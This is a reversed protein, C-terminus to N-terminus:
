GNSLPLSDVSACLGLPKSPTGYNPLTARSCPWPSTLLFRISYAPQLNVSPLRCLRWCSRLLRYVGMGRAFALQRGLQRTVVTAAGVMPSGRYTFHWTTAKTTLTRIARRVSLVRTMALRAHAASCLLLLCCLATSSLSIPAYTEPGDQLTAMPLSAWLGSDRVRVKWIIDGFSFTQTCVRAPALAALAELCEASDQDSERQVNSILLEDLATHLEKLASASSADADSQTLLSAAMASVASPM